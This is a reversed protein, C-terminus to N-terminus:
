QKVKYSNVIAEADRQYNQYPKNVGFLNLIFITDGRQEAFSVSDLTNGQKDKGTWDVRVSGDSQLETKQWSVQSLRNEYETKLASELQQPTLQSAQAAGYDVAGAFGQDGSVFAIGSGTDQYVYGQPLTIEFLGNKDRYTQAQAPASPSPPPSSPAATTPNPSISPFPSVSVQPPASPKGPIDKTQNQGCAALTAALLLCSAIRFVVHM